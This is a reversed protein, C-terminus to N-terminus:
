YKDDLNGIISKKSKFYIVLTYISMVLALIMMILGLTHAANLGSELTKRTLSFLVGFLLILPLLISYYILGNIDEDKLMFWLVLVLIYAISIEKLISTLLAINLAKHTIVVRILRVVFLSSNQMINVAQGPAEVLMLQRGLIALKSWFLVMYIFFGLKLVYELDERKSNKLTTM